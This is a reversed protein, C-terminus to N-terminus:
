RRLLLVALGAIALLAPLVWKIAYAAREITCVTPAFEEVGGVVVNGAPSYANSLTTATEQPMGTALYADRAISPSAELGDLDLDFVVGADADAIIWRDPAIRARVVVHGDLGVISADVGNERLVTVLVISVQSCLGLGREVAKKASCFEYQRYVRPAAWSLGWLVFNERAPVRMSYKAIAREDGWWHAVSGDVLHTMREVLARDSEGSQRRARKWFEDPTVSLPDPIRVQPDGALSPSRLGVVMGALNLALLAIGVVLAIWALRRM